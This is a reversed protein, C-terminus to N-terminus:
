HRDGGDKYGYIYIDMTDYGSVLPLRLISLPQCSSATLPQIHRRHHSCIAIRFEVVEVKPPSSLLELFWLCGLGMRLKRRPRNNSRGEFGTAAKGEGQASGVGEGVLPSRM